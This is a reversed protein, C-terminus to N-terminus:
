KKFGNIVSDISVYHLGEPDIEQILEIAFDEFKEHRIGGSRLRGVVSDLNSDRFLEPNDIMYKKTYEDSDILRFIYKNIYIDRGKIFDKQTYYKGTYPNRCKNREMFKCSQRGSNKNAVEYIQITDDRCFVSLIFNRETDSRIPSIMKCTFRLIHKDQKFMKIMDRIRALPTLYYVSLLSDEESGYGNHPPIPHIVKQPPNKKLRIPNM